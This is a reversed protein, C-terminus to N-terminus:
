GRAASEGRIVGVCQERLRRIAAAHADSARELGGRPAEAAGELKWREHAFEFHRILLEVWRGSVDPMDVAFRRMADLHLRMRHYAEPDVRHSTLQAAEQSYADLESLLQLAIATVAGAQSASM